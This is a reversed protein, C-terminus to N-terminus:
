GHSVRGAELGASSVRGASDVDDQKGLVYLVSDQTEQDENVNPSKVFLTGLNVAQLYSLDPLWDLNPDAGNSVKEFRLRGHEGPTALLLCSAGSLGADKGASGLGRNYDNITGWFGGSVSFDVRAEHAQRVGDSSRQNFGGFTFFYGDGQLMKLKGYAYSFSVYPSQQLIEFEDYNVTKDRDADIALTSKGFFWDANGENPYCLAFYTGTPQVTFTNNPAYFQFKYRTNASENNVIFNLPIDANSIGVVNRVYRMSRAIVTETPGADERVLQVICACRVGASTSNVEFNSTLIFQGVDKLTFWVGPFTAFEMSDESTSGLHNTQWSIDAPTATAAGSVTTQKVGMYEWDDKLRVISLHGDGARVQSGGGTTDARYMYIMTRRQQTTGTLQKIACINISGGNCNDQDKMYSSCRGEDHITGLNDQLHARVQLRDGPLGEGWLRVSGIILYIGDAEVFVRENAFNRFFTDTDQQVLTPLQSRVGAVSVVYGATDPDREDRYSCIHGEESAM